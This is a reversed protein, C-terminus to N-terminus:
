LRTRLQSGCWKGRLSSMSPSFSKRRFNIRLFSRLCDISIDPLRFLDPLKGSMRLSALRFLLMCDTCCCFSGDPRGTTRSYFTWKPLIERFHQYHQYPPPTPSLTINTSNEVISITEQQTLLTNNVKM